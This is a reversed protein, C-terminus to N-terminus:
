LEYRVLRDCKSLRVGPIVELWEAKPQEGRAWALLAAPIDAGAAHSFPYGGGFRPNLEVVNLEADNAFVDCDLNGVHGLRRGIEAGLRSLERNDVTEAIDTEGARMALKRKVFVAVNHGELDNVVDLGYEQGKAFEQVIVCRDPDASGAGALVSRFVRRQVLQYSLVLERRDHPYEVGISGSGWRPKVVVPFSLQGRDILQLADGLECFTAPARLGWSRIREVTALKDFCVDIVEPESVVVVTGVKRFLDKERALVPLEMDNLPILLGVKIDHPAFSWLINEETRLKGMNLRNSYIYEVKGMDGATIMEQLKIVAPHYRLIHGVMLIREKTEALKVLAVGEKVTLALPKEVFVDRGTELVLRCLEFHTVAPTAIVVSDVVTDMLVAQLNDYKAVEASLGLGQFRTPDSDCVAHLVGLKHFVRVLNKGWYGTGVVAVHRKMGKEKGDFECDPNKDDFM